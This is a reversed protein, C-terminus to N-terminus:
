RAAPRASNSLEWVIQDALEDDFIMGSWLRSDWIVPLNIKWPDPELFDQLHQLTDRPRVDGVLRMILIDHPKSHLFGLKQPCTKRLM